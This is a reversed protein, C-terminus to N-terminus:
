AIYITCTLDVNDGAAVDVDAALSWRAAMRGGAAKDLLAVERLVFATVVNNFVARAIYAVVTYTVTAEMRYKENELCKDETSPAVAGQGIAIYPMWAKSFNFPSGLCSAITELGVMTIIDIAEVVEGNIRIEGSAKKISGLNM